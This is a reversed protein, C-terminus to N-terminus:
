SRAEAPQVESADLYLKTSAAFGGRAGMVNVILRGDRTRRKFLGTRGLYGRRLITVRCGPLLKANKM